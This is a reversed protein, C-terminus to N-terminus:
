GYAADIVAPLLTFRDTHSSSILEIRRCIRCARWGCSAMALTFDLADLVLDLPQHSALLAQLGTFDSVFTTLSIASSDSVCGLLRDNRQSERWQHFM